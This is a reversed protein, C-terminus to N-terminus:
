EHPLEIRKEYRDCEIFPMNDPIAVPRVGRKKMAELFVGFDCELRVNTRGYGMGTDFYEAAMGEYDVRFGYGWGPDAVAYIPNAKIEQRTPPTVGTFQKFTFRGESDTRTEIPSKCPRRGIFHGRDACATIQAGVLPRGAM